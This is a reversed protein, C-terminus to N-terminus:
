VKLFYWSYYGFALATLIIKHIFYNRISLDTKAICSYTQALCSFGGFVLLTLSIFPTQNGLMKLGGTIELIGALLGQTMGNNLFQYPIINLLNFFIMYGGLKTIGEISASISEDLAKLLGISGPKESNGNNRSGHSAKISFNSVIRESDVNSLRKKRSGPLIKKRYLFNSRGDYVMEPSNSAIRKSALKSAKKDRYFTYRLFLGYCLPIGYMGFLLVTSPTLNLLLLAFSIFYVPGINNVFSLLYNAENKTIQRREYLDAVIRAGMPFGCLFGAAIAYLPAPRLCFLPKLFPNFVMMLKDTLNMRIMMGSLIMFPFLTPVMKQFWLNLGNLAFQLCERPYALLLATLLLFILSYFVKKM